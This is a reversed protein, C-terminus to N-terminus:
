KVENSLEQLQKKMGNFEGFMQQRVKELSHRVEKIYNMEEKLQNVSWEYVVVETKNADASKVVGYMRRHPSTEPGLGNSVHRTAEFTVFSLILISRICCLAMEHKTIIPYKM